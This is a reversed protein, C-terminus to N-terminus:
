TALTDVSAGPRGTSGIYLDHRPRHRVSPWAVSLKDNEILALDVLRNAAPFDAGPMGHAVWIGRLHPADNLANSLAGLKSRDTILGTARCNNLIYSTKDSKTTPNLVLFAAGAKLIAFISIVAEASNELYIAVRDGTRRGRDALNALGIPGTEVGTPSGANM